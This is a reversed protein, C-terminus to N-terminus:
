PAICTPLVINSKLSRDPNFLGWSGELTTWRQKKWPADFTEFYYYKIQKNADCIFTDLFIQLNKITPVSGQYPAGDTPWGVESMVADKKGDAAIKVDNDNYYQLTWNAAQEIKVGAFYPHVNAWIMDTAKVFAADVNSGLDSTFVPITKKFGMSNVKTRVDAIRKYLETTQLEENGVSVGDIHDVGYKGVLNFFDNYQRQYTTYNDDVWITPVITINLKLLLIAELTYEAMHCDMGYLRIRNTLQSVLKIDEIVDGLTNGCWPFSANVPGYNMGYFAKKFNANPIITLNVPKNDWTYYQAGSTGNGSPDTNNNPSTNTGHGGNESSGNGAGDPRGHSSRTLAFAVGGIIALLVIIGLTAIVIRYKRSSRQQSKLWESANPDVAVM